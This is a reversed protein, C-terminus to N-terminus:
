AVLAPTMPLAGAREMSEHLWDRFKPDAIAILAEARQRLTRGRLYAIGHETVVYQVDSRTTVVGAGPDLAPVIRSITGHKATSPLAIIAKGGKSRAAGRVFDAQGGVGSYPRAGMSDACVQGSLDVQIACNIAHMNQNQAIVFPDNVYSTRRFEFLPNGDIFDFLPRSGLVFGAVVKGRHLTKRSGNVAGSHILPLLGDPCLESHIGLNRHGGLAALIRNGIGGIGIQLTAGDPVLSAVNRAIRETVDSSPAPPLELLPRSTEVIAAFRSVHLVTDGLTRPMNHNVEAVVTGAREVATMTCDIGTGLTVNGYADPPSVQVLAVDIPLDGSEFLSEIESLSVPTYDARGAAAADRVNGGLFLGNHRFNGAYEPRTYAAKGLTLMHLLEVNRLEVARDVLADLLPEPTANGQHVWVRDGSRIARVASEADTLRQHYIAQWSNKSRGIM